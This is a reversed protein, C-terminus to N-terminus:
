TNGYCLYKQRDYQYHDGAGHGHRGPEPVQAISHEVGASRRRHDGFSEDKYAVAMLRVEGSFQPIDFEFSANGSGDAKAIGSWYSVIKVRKAPMPNTRKNMELDGDGGTSSLRARLEPFLLPYMDYAQVELSKPAYFHGYPDPTKFDSVQLVGNDVAALTVFSGPTAKVKVTQHTRSRVSKQAEIQVAIKRDNEEVRISKFGHAVTLPIESVEHPKILTATVYVNPLHDASLKLDVSATRNEVNVYQYSVVKDTEMTVLMRGSFPTKFLVKASEGTQYTSKDLEIDINGEADVEFSSNDGGWSGYSYFTSSVYSAAGPISVRLEYNGPSRPVFSYATAEGSVSLQQQAVVRDEQQSEYRFYNGEKRLITRYEHKIVKIDAKAGGALNENKDLAIIPFRVQQNLPYYYYGDNGVGFFVNQTYIDATASRSVPRGTEDFVTAYFTAQLLGKNAFIDPVSYSISANGNEDTSGEKVVNEFSLGQNELSFSYRSYKKPSFYKAKTQIEAEYNRNAAPPGFFNLANINLTTSQGPALTPKDLKASM